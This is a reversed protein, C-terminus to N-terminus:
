YEIRIPGSRCVSAVERWAAVMRDNVESKSGLSATILNSLHVSATVGDPPVLAGDIADAFRVGAEATLSANGEGDDNAEDRWGRTALVAHMAHFSWNNLGAWEDKVNYFDVSM